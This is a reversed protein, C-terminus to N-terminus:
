AEQKTLPGKSIQIRKIWVEGILVGMRNQHADFLFLNDRWEFHIM